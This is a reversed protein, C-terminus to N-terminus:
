EANISANKEETIQKKGKNLLPLKVSVAAGGTKNQISITGKHEQIVKYAISLGIGKKQSRNRTTYFPDFAKDINEFGGGNDTIEIEAFAGDNSKRLILEIKGKPLRRDVIAEIANNIIGEFVQWLGFHNGQVILNEEHFFTSLHITKDRDKHFKIKILKDLLNNINIELKTQETEPNLQNLQSIIDKIRLSQSKIHTLKDKLYPSIDDRLEILNIYGLIGALPNNIEHAFGSVIAMLSKQKENQIIIKQTNKLEEMASQLKLNAMNLEETREVVQKELNKQSSELERMMSELKQCMENFTNALFLFEDNTRLRIRYSLDGKSVAEFGKKLTNIPSMKRHIIFRLTLIVIIILLFISYFFYRNITSILQKKKNLSQGYVIHGWITDSDRTLVPISIINFTEKGSKFKYATLEDSPKFTKGTISDEGRRVIEEGTSYYLIVFDEKKEQLIKEIQSLLNMYNFYVFNPEVLSEFDKGWLKLEQLVFRDVFTNVINITFFYSAIITAALIAIIHLQIKTNVSRFKRM